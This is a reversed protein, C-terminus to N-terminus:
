GNTRGNKQLDCPKDCGAADNGAYVAVAVQWGSLPECATYGATEGTFQERNKPKVLDYRKRSQNQYYPACVYEVLDNLISNEGCQEAQVIKRRVMELDNSFFDM